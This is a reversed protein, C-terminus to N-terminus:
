FREFIRLRCIIRITLLIVTDVEIYSVFLYVFLFNILTGVDCLNCYKRCLKKATEVDTTCIHFLDCSPNVDVCPASFICM